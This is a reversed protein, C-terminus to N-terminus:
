IHLFSPVGIRLMVVSEERHSEAVAVTTFLFALATCCVAYPAGQGSRMSKPAMDTSFPWTFAVCPASHHYGSDSKVIKLRPSNDRDSFNEEFFELLDNLTGKFRDNSLVYWEKCEHYHNCITATLKVDCQMWYKHVGM